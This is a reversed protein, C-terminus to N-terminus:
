GCKRKVRNFIDHITLYVLKLFVQSSWNGAKFTDHINFFAPKLIWMRWRSSQSRSNDLWWIARGSTSSRWQTKQMPGRTIKTGKAYKVIETKLSTLLFVTSVCGWTEQIKRIQNVLLAQRNTGTTSVSRRGSSQRHFGGVMRASRAKNEDESQEAGRWQDGLVWSSTSRCRITAPRTKSEETSDQPAATVFNSIYKYDFKFLRTSYDQSLSRYMTKRTASNEETKLLTHNKQGSTWECQIDTIKASNKWAIPVAPTDELVQVTASCARENASWRQSNYGKYPKQIGSYDGTGSLESREKEAHANFSRFRGRIRKGRTENFIASAFCWVKSPSHFPPKTRKRQAHRYKQDNEVRSQPRMAGTKLSEEESRHEIKPAHLDGEHPHAHQVTGKSFQMSRKPGLFKQSRGYSRSPNRRSYM